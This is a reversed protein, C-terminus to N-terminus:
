PAIRRLQRMLEQLDEWGRAKERPARLYYSPHYTVRLPVGLPSYEYWRGRLKGVTENTELLTQAAVRGLCLIVKPAILAIQRELYARCHAIEAPLPDRNQPPRCKIINCIYVQDRRLLMAALMRTLLQGARGIFPEGQADEDRGPAEGVLLLTAHRDGCGFVTQTREHCLECLQCDAVTAALQEWNMLAISPAAAAPSFQKMDEIPEPLLTVEDLEITKILEIPATFEVPPISEIPKVSGALAATNAVKIQEPLLTTDISTLSAPYSEHMHQIVDPAAHTM